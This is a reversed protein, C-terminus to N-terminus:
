AANRPPIIEPILLTLIEKDFKWRARIKRKNKVAQIGQKKEETQKILEKNIKKIEETKM